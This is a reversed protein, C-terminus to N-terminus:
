AVYEVRTAAHRPRFRTGTVIIFRERDPASRPSAVRRLARGGGLPLPDLHPPRAECGANLVPFWSSAIHPLDRGRSIKLLAQFPYDRLEGLHEVFNGRQLDLHQKPMGLEIRCRQSARHRNIARTGVM